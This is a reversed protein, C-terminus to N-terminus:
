VRDPLTPNERAESIVSKKKKKKKKKEFNKMSRLRIEEEEGEGNKKRGTIGPTEILARCVLLDHSSVLKSGGKGGKM